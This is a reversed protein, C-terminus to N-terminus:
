SRALPAWLYGRSDPAAPGERPESTIRVTEIGNLPMPSEILCMGKGDEALYVDGGSMKKEGTILWVKYMRDAPLSPLGDVMVVARQDSPAYYIMGRAQPAMETSIMSATAPVRRMIEAAVMADKWGQRLEQEAHQTREQLVVETAQARRQLSAVEGQLSSVQFALWGALMLPILAAAAALWGFPNTFGAVRQPRIPIPERVSRPELIRPAGDAPHGAGAAAM